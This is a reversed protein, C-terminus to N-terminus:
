MTIITDSSQNILRISNRTQTQRLPHHRTHCYSTRTVGPQRCRRGVVARSMAPPRFERVLGGRGAQILGAVCLNSDAHIM